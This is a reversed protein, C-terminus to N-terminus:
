LFGKLIGLMQEYKPSRLKYTLVTAETLAEIETKAAQYMTRVFPMLETLRAPEPDYNIRAQVIVNSMETRLHELEAYLRTKEATLDVVRPNIVYLVMDSTVDYFLEGPVETVPDFVPVVEDRWGDEYHLDDRTEYGGLFLEGSERTFVGPIGSQVIENNKILHKM